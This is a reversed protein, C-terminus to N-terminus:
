GRKGLLYWTGLSRACLKGNADRVEGEAVALTKGARIVKGTARFPGVRLPELFNVNLDTTLQDVGPNVSMVAIGCANDLSYMIIGGHVMGGRRSIAKKFPFSIEARGKGVSVVEYGVTRWLESDWTMAKQMEAEIHAGGKKAMAFLNRYSGAKGLLDEFTVNPPGGSM